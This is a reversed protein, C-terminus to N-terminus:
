KFNEQRDLRKNTHICEDHELLVCTQIRVLLSGIGDERLDYWEIEKGLMSIFAKDRVSRAQMEGFILWLSFFGGNVVITSIGLCALAISWVSVNQLLENKTTSGAGFSSLEDFIRGLFITITPKVAGALTTLLLAPILVTFDKKNTFAFISALSAQVIGDEGESVGKAPRMNSYIDCGEFIAM